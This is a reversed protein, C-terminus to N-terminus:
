IGGPTRCQRTGVGRVFGDYTAMTPAFANTERQFGAVLIIMFVEREICGSQQLSDTMTKSLLACMGSISFSQDRLIAPAECKGAVLILSTASRELLLL